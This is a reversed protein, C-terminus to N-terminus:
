AFTRGGDMTIIEGNIYGGLNSALFAAMNGVEEATGLRNVPVQKILAAREEDDTYLKRFLETDIMTIALANTTIGYKGYTKSLNRIVGMIGAKSAAYHVGGGGGTFMSTSAINIISGVNNKVMYPLVEKCCNITGLLNVKIVKEIADYSLEEIDGASTIGANNVLIDIKDYQSEIWIAMEKVQDKNTVDAKYVGAKGGEEEIEQKLTYADDLNMADNIVVTAGAKALVKSIGKGIGKAGGTVLAIKGTLDIRLM